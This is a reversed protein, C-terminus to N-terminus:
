SRTRNENVQMPFETQDAAMVVNVAADTSLVQVVTVNKESNPVNRAVHM